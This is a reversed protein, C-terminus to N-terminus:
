ALWHRPDLLGFHGTGPVVELEAGLVEALYGSMEKSVLVDEAGHLVRCPVELKGVEFGWKARADAHRTGLVTRVDHLPGAIGGRFSEATTSEWLALVAPTSLFARDPPPLSELMGGTFYGMPNVMVPAALTWLARLVFGFGSAVVRHAMKNTGAVADVAGPPPEVFGAPGLLVLRGVRSPFLSAFAIAPAAGLSFGVVDAKAGPPLLSSLLTDLDRATSSPNGAPDFDSYGYGPRDPCVVRVGREACTRDMDLLPPLRSGPQGHLFLVTKRADAPGYSAYALTRGSPLSISAPEAHWKELTGPPVPAKSPSAKAAEIRSAIHPVSTPTPRLALYLGAGLPVATAALVLVRKPTLDSLLSEGPM